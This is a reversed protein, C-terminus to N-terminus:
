TQEWTTPISLLLNGEIPIFRTASKILTLATLDPVGYVEVETRHEDIIKNVVPTYDGDGSALVITDVDKALTIMDLAIGVDWDGKTSGDMRQLFPTLKVQFGIKKLIQQFHKQKNDGKDTAYAMAQVVKRGSTIQEWFATYNFHCNYKQKVTYYINQVDVFIAVKEPTRRTKKSTM